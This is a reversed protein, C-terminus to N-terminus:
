EARTELLQVRCHWDFNVRGSPNGNPQWGFVTVKIDQAEVELLTTLFVPSRSRPTAVFYVDRTQFAGVPYCAFESLKLVDQGSLSTQGGGCMHVIRINRCDKEVIEGGESDRTVVTQYGSEETFFGAVQPSPSPQVTGPDPADPLDTNGFTM